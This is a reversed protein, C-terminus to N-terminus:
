LLNQGGHVKTHHIAHASLKEGQAAYNCLIFYNCFVHV